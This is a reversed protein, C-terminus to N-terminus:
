TSIPGFFGTLDGVAGAVSKMVKGGADKVDLQANGKINNLGFASNLTYTIGKKLSVTENVANISNGSITKVGTDASYEFGKSYAKVLSLTPSASANLFTTEDSRQSLFTEASLYTQKNESVPTLMKGAIPKVPLVIKNPTTKNLPKPPTQYISNGIERIISTNSMGTEEYMKIYM